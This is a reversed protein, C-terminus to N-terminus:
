LDLHMALNICHENGPDRDIGIRVVRRASNEDHINLYLWALRSCDTPILEAIRREMAEAVRRLLQLMDASWADSVSQGRLDRIRNNLRNAINSLSESSASPLLAAEGLAHVEGVPDQMARCLDALQLWVQHRRGPEATELFKQLYVKAREDGRMSRDTERVLEALELYAEPVQSALYELVPMHQELAEASGGAKRAVTSVLRHVRPFVGRHVDERKGAGFEILLKRDEEVAGKLLSVELKKRGFTAAALPVGVFDMGDVESVVTEILSFRRLEEIGRSVDFRENGPRLMVAEVAVAPVFVRWSCLLLFIREAAPTLSNYTREFLATLLNDATAVIRKLRVAQKARASQGLLMKMVYPHGDSENLIEGAYEKTVLAEIGLRAAEGGILVRAEAETMGGIHIPYDGAFDRFRTTILVKNPPRIYTDVWAFVDSPSQMTEFNDFVFLTPGAAGEELCTQFYSQPAFGPEHRETPELLEVVLRAVDGQTVVAPSVPKPGSEMLDVDRASMWVIIEYPCGPMRAIRDLASIALSTKGIGGPGTLSVIPHREVQLLQENLISELQPREVYGRLAPPLNAFINGHVDLALRGETQSAPLRGPPVSWPTADESRNENTIYSLAEFRGRNFNGNPLFIDLLDRDTRVLPVPTPGDLWVYVGNALRADTSTKLYDFPACDGLLRSVYYKGSINRHLHAWPLSLLHCRSVLAEIGELLLPCAESCQAGTPAGHGRTKNRLAAGLQFFRRLAVKTSTEATIGLAIMCAQISHVASFRWDGESVRETLERTLEAALPLFFQAAAGTLAADLTEVWEGIANARILKHELSYRHRNADDGLCAVVGATVIKTVYELYLGLDYFLAVDGESMSLAVRDAMKALLPGRATTL